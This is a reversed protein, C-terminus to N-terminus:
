YQMTSLKNSQLTLLLAGYFIYHQLVQLKHIPQGNSLASCRFNSSLITYYAIYKITINTFIDQLFPVQRLCQATGSIDM